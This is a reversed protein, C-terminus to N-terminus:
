RGADTRRTTTHDAPTHRQGCRTVVPHRAPTTGAELHALFMPAHDSGCALWSRVPVRQTRLARNAVIQALSEDVWYYAGLEALEITWACDGGRWAEIEWGGVVDRGSQVPPYRVLLYVAAPMPHPDNEAMTTWEHDVGQPHADAPTELRCSQSPSDSGLTRVEPHDLTLDPDRGAPQSGGAGTM